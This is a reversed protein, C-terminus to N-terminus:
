EAAIPVIQRLMGYMPHDSELVCSRIGYIKSINEETLVDSPTGRFCLRGEVIALVQTPVGSRDFFFPHNPSHTAMVISKSEEKILRAANELFVLENRFDLHASPEDMLILPTDQVMSRALMVLQMEGGSIMTYPRQALHAIGIRQMADNAMCRGEEDPGSMVGSRANRGMLVIQETTYPFTRDHIQPVFAAHRAFDRPRMQFVDRGDLYIRGQDPPHVGLIANLLTSKGCGNSGMLCYMVGPEVQFSIREVIPPGDYSLSVDQVDLLPVETFCSDANQTKDGSLGNPDKSEHRSVAM